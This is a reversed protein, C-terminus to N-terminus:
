LSWPKALLYQYTEKSLPNLPLEDVEFDKHAIEAKVGKYNGKAIIRKEIYVALYSVTLALLGM